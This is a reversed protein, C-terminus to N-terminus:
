IGVCFAFCVTNLRPNTAGSTSMQDILMIGNYSYVGLKPDSWYYKVYILDGPKIDLDTDTANGDIQASYIPNNALDRVDGGVPVSVGTGIKKFTVYTVGATPGSAHMKATQAGVNVNDFYIAFDKVASPLSQIEGGTGLFIGIYADQIGWEPICNSNFGPIIIKGKIPLDNLNCNPNNNVTFHIKAAFDTKKTNTRDYDAEVPRFFVFLNYTEGAPVVINTLTKKSNDFYFPNTEVASGIFEVKDIILPCTSSTNRIIVYSYGKASSSTNIGEELTVTNQDNTFPQIFLPSATEFACGPSEVLLNVVIKLDSQCDTTNGDADVMIISYVATDLVPGVANMNARVRMYSLSSNPKLTAPLNINSEGNFSYISLGTNTFGKKLKYVMDCEKSTNIIQTLTIDFDKQSNVCLTAQSTQSPYYVIQNDPCSCENCKSEAGFRFTAFTFAPQANPTITVVINDFAMPKELYQTNFIMGIEFQEGPLLSFPLTVQSIVGIASMKYAILTAGAINAFNSASVTMPVTCDPAYFSTLVTDVAKENYCISIPAIDIQGLNSGCLVSILRNFKYTIVTDSCAIKQSAVYISDPKLEGKQASPPFLLFTFYKGESPITFSSTIEGFSNTIGTNGYPMLNNINQNPTEAYLVQAGSIPKKSQDVVRITSNAGRIESVPEVSSQCAYFAFVSLASLLLAASKIFRNSKIKNINKMEIQEKIIKLSLNSLRSIM